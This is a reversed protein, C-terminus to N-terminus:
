MSYGSKGKALPQVKAIGSATFGLEYTEFGGVQGRNEVCDTILRHAKEKLDEERIDVYNPTGHGALDVTIICKPRESGALHTLLQGAFAGGAKLCDDILKIGWNQSNQRAWRKGEVDTWTVPVQKATQGPYYRHAIFREFNMTDPIKNAAKRCSEADLNRGYLIRCVRFDPHHLDADDGLTSNPYAALSSPSTSHAASPGASTRQGEAILIARTPLVQLAWLLSIFISSAPLICLPSFTPFM